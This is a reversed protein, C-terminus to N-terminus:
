NRVFTLLPEYNGNDAEKLSKIYNSRMTSPDQLDSKGWSFRSLGSQWLFADAVLRAHRGNGNPFPHIYVLRHNFRVSIEELPFTQHTKWFAIDDCLVRLATPIEFPPMGINTQYKRFDGAWGWVKDFMKQHIKQLFSVSLLDGHKKSFLWKEALLINAQEWENLDRHNTIHKPILKAYCACM